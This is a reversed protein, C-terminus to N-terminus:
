LNKKKKELYSHYRQFSLVAWVLHGLGVEPWLAATTYLLSSSTQWMLFNSLRTEGSSRIVIDPDPAVAMYMRKEIDVLNIAQNEQMEMGCAVEEILGNTVSSACKCSEQVAHLVEDTSTYAICISLVAQNNHATAKMAKEAALRVSENLLKLNGIFHVRVGYQHVISEAKILSEIKEQLLEMLNQVEEPPRKFNDISFAYVTVYKVGLRYCYKLQNMLAVYGARHGMGYSLNRTKEYRRNGDMIFAIHCPIPGVSLIGFLLKQIFNIVAEFFSNAPAYGTFDVEM